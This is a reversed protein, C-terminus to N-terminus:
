PPIVPVRVPHMQDTRKVLPKRGQSMVLVGEPYYSTNGIEDSM